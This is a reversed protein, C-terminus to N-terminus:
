SGKERKGQAALILSRQFVVHPTKRSDGWKDLEAMAQQYNGQALYTQALGVHPSAFDADLRLAQEFADVAERYRGQLM